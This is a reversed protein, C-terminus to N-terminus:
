RNESEATNLGGLQVLREGSQNDGCGASGCSIQADLVPDPTRLELTAPGAHVDFHSCEAKVFADAFRALAGFFGDADADEVHRAFAPLWRALHDRLFTREADLCIDAHEKEGQAHAHAEKACLASMFESETAIHDPRGNKDGAIELGFARYFGALDALDSAQRIIENRGYEMEYAPCAGRVAHGFLVDYREQWERYPEDSSGALAKVASRVSELPEKTQGDAEYLVDPWREWRMPDGLTSPTDRDPYQFGHAILGYAAARAQAAELEKVTQPSTM